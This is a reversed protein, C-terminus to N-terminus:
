ESKKTKKPEEPKYGDFQAAVLEAPTNAIRARDGKVLTVPKFEEAM